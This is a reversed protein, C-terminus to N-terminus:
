IRNTGCHRRLIVIICLSEAIRAGLDKCPVARDPIVVILQYVTSVIFLNIGIIQIGAGAGQDAVRASDPIRPFACGPKKDGTVVIQVEM